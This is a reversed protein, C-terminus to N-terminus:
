VHTNTNLSRNLESMCNSVFLLKLKQRLENGVTFKGNGSSKNVCIDPM